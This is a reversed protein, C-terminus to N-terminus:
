CRHIYKTFLLALCMNNSSCVCALRVHFLAYRSCHASCLTLRNSNNRHRSDSSKGEGCCKGTYVYVCPGPYVCQCKLNLMHTCQGICLDKINLCFSMHTKTYMSFYSAQQHNTTPVLSHVDHLQRYPLIQWVAVTESHFSSIIPHHKHNHSLTPLLISSLSFPPLSLSLSLCLPLSCLLLSGIWEFQRLRKTHSIIFYLALLQVM